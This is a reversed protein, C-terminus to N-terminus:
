CRRRFLIEATMDPVTVSNFKKDVPRKGDRTKFDYKLLNFALMCKIENVAFFDGRVVSTLMIVYLFLSWANVGMGFTLFDVNTNVCQFKPLDGYEERLKWFSFGDFETANKYIKSSSSNCRRVVPVGLVAGTIGNSFTFPKLVARLSRAIKLMQSNTSTGSTLHHIRTSEKLFSDLKRMKAIYDKDM